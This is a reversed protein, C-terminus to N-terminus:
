RQEKKWNKDCSQLCIIAKKVAKQRLSFSAEKQTKSARLNFYKIHFVTLMIIVFINM